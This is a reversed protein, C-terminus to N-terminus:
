GRPAALVVDVLVQQFRAAQEFQPTHGSETFDIWEKSPAELQDFWERALDGRASLEHSGAFLYVPVELSRVSERFDLGQLQPYMVAGMDALARLKNVKDLWGYEQAGNGDIGSPRDATFSASRQYPEIDDYFEILRAYPYIDAYPPAGWADIEALLADDDRSAALERMAANLRTDTELVDVMQGAGIYGAFLDPREAVALVGLISGWSNGFVYVPRGGFRDRLYTALDVTDAVAQSLDM